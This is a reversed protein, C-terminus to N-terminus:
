IIKVGNFGVKIYYFQPKCLYVNKRIKSFIISQLYENSGGRQPPQLSCRCDINQAPIHLIDSNKIQFNEKKQNYFIWYIQVYLRTKTIARLSKRGSALTYQSDRIM